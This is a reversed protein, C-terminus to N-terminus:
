KQPEKEEFPDRFDDKEQFKPFPDPELHADPNRKKLHNLMKTSWTAPKQELKSLQVAPKGNRAIVINEGNEVAEVLKSLNTKAEHMNVIRTKPKELTKPM